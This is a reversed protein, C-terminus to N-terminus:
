YSDEYGYDDDHGHDYGHDDDGYMHHDDMHDSMHGHHDKGHKGGHHKGYGYDHAGFHGYFVGSRHPGDPGYGHGKKGHDGKPHKYGLWLYPDFKPDFQYNEVHDPYRADLYKGLEEGFGIVAPGHPGYPLKGRAPASNYKINLAFQKKGRKALLQAMLNYFRESNHMCVGAEVEKDEHRDKKGRGYYKDRGDRKDSKKSHDPTKYKFWYCQKATKCGKEKRPCLCANAGGELKALEFDWFCAGRSSTKHPNDFLPDANYDKEEIKSCEEPDKAYTNVEFRCDMSAKYFSDEEDEEYHDDYRDHRDGSFHATKIESDDSFDSTMFDYSDDYLDHRNDYHGHSDHDHGHGYYRNRKPSSWRSKVSEDSSANEYAPSSDEADEVTSEESDHDPASKSSTDQNGGSEGYNVREGLFGSLFAEREQDTPTDSGVASAGRTYSNISAANSVGFFTLAILFLAALPRRWRCGPAMKLLLRRTEAVDGGCSNESVPVSRRESDGM